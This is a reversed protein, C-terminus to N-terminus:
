GIRNLLQSSCETIPRKDAGNLPFNQSCKKNTFFPLCAPPLATPGRGGGRYDGTSYITATCKEKRKQSQFIPPAMAMPWGQHFDSIAGRTM